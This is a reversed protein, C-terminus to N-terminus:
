ALIEREKLFVLFSNAVESQTLLKLSGASEPRWALRPLTTQVRQAGATAHRRSPM